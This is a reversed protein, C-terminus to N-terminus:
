IQQLLFNHKYKNKSGLLDLFHRLRWQTSSREIRLSTDPLSSVEVSMGIPISSADVLNSTVSKLHYVELEKSSSEWEIHTKTIM